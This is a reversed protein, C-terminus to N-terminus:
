ARFRHEIKWNIDFEQVKCGFDTNM